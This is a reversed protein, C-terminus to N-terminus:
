FLHFVDVDDAVARLTKSIEDIVNKIERLDFGAHDGKRHVPHM